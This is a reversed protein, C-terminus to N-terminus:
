IPAKENELTLALKNYIAFHGPLLKTFQVKSLHKKALELNNLAANIEALRLQFISYNPSDESKFFTIAEQYTTNALQLQGVLQYTRALNGVAMTISESYGLEKAWFIASKRHPISELFQNQSYLANAFNGYIEHQLKADKSKKYKQALRSFMQVAKDKDGFVMELNAIEVTRLPNPFSESTASVLKLARKAYQNAKVKDGYVGQAKSAYFYLPTQFSIPHERQQNIYQETLNKLTLLSTSEYLLDLYHLTIFYWDSSYPAYEDQTKLLKTSCDPVSLEACIDEFNHMNDAASLEACFLFLSTLIGYLRNM